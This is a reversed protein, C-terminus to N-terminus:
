SPWPPAFRRAQEKYILQGTGGEDGGNPGRANLNLEVNSRM